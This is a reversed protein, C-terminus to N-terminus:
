RYTEMSFDYTSAVMFFCAIWFAWQVMTRVFCWDIQDRYRM